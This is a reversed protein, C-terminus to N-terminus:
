FTFYLDFQLLWEKLKNRDSYFYNPTAVKIGRATGANDNNNSASSSPTACSALTTSM